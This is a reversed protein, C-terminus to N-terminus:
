EPQGEGKPLRIVVTVGDIVIDCNVLPLIQNSTTDQLVVERSLFALLRAKQYLNMSNCFHFLKQMEAAEAQEQRLQAESKKPPESTAKDEGPMAGTAGASAPEGSPAGQSSMIDEKMKDVNQVLGQLRGLVEMPDPAAQAVDSSGESAVSPQQGKDQTKQATKQSTKKTM